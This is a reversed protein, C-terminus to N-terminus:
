KWCSYSQRVGHMLKKTDYKHNYSLM